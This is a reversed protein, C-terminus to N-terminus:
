LDIEEQNDLLSGNGKIIGRTSNKVFDVITELENSQPIAQSTNLGKQFLVKMIDQVSNITDGTFRRRRLGIVNVGVYQLHNVPLVFIPLFM